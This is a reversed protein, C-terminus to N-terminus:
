YNVLYKIDANKKLEEIWAQSKENLKQSRLDDKYMTRIEDLNADKPFYQKNEEIYKEVEEDTVQIDTGVAKEIIKKVKLREKLEELTVKEQKLIEDFNEGADQIDKKLKEVEANIDEETIEIKDQAAKQTILAQTIYNDLYTKGQDKEMQRILELRSIPQGNVTAAIFFSKAAYLLGVAIIILSIITIRRNSFLGPKSEVKQQDEKMLKAKLANIKEQDFSTKKETEQILPKEQRKEQYNAKKNTQKNIKKAM